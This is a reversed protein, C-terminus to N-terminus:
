AQGQALIRDFSQQAEKMAAELEGDFVAGRDPWEADGGPV